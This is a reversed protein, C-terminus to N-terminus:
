ICLFRDVSFRSYVLIRNYVSSNKVLFISGFYNQKYTESYVIWIFVIMWKMLPAMTTTITHYNSKCGGTCDTSIVALTTIPVWEHCPTSSVVNHSWTKWHSSVPQHNEGGIFSVAMIYSFYQQFWGYVMMENFSIFTVHLFTLTILTCTIIRSIHIFIMLYTLQYKNKM